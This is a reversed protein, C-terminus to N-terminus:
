KGGEYPHMTKVDMPQWAVQCPECVLYDSVQDPNDDQTWTDVFKRLTLPFMCRPCRGLQLARKDRRHEREVWMAAIAVAAVLIGVGVIAPLMEWM